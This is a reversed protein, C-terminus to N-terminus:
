KKPSINSRRHIEFISDVRNDTAYNEIVSNIRNSTLITSVRQTDIVPSLYTNTTDLRLRMNLSKNGTVNQLNNTENVRSCILRPSSFYNPSNVSIPEFGSDIFPIENGSISTGTTTRCKASLSTGQVTLNQVIPTMIEFPINQTPEISYGGGSKTENQYLNTFGIGSSRDVGDSSM